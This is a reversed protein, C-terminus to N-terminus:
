MVSRRFSSSLTVSKPPVASQNLQSLEAPTISRNHAAVVIPGTPQRAEVVSSRGHEVGASTMEYRTSPFSM